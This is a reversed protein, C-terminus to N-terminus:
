VFGWGSAHGRGKKKEAEYEALIQEESLDGAAEVEALRSTADIKEQIATAKNFIGYTNEACM